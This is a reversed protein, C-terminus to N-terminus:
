ALPCTCPTGVISATKPPTTPAPITSTQAAEEVTPASSLPRPSSPPHFTLSGYAQTTFSLIDVDIGIGVLYRYVGISMMMWCDTIM